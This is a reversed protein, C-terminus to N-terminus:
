LVYIRMLAKLFVENEDLNCCVLSLPKERIKRQNTTVTTTTYYLFVSLFLSFVNALIYTNYFPTKNLTGM